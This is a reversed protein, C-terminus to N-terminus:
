KPLDEPCGRSLHFMMGPKSGTYAPLFSRPLELDTSPSWPERQSQLRFSVPGVDPLMMLRLAPDGPGLHWPTMSLTVREGAQITAAGRCVLILAEQFRPISTEIFRALAREPSGGRNFQVGGPWFAFGAPPAGQRGAANPVTPPPSELWQALSIFDELTGSRAMTANDNSRLNVTGDSLLELSLGLAVETCTTLCTLRPWTALCKWSGIGNVWAVDPIRPSHGHLQKFETFLSSASLNVTVATSYLQARGNRCIRLFQNGEPTGVCAADWRPATSVAKRPVRYTAGTSDALTLTLDDAQKVTFVKQADVVTGAPPTPDLGVVHDIYFADNPFDIELRRAPRELRIPIVTQMGSRYGQVVSPPMGAPTVRLMITEVPARTRSSQVSLLITKAPYEGFDLSIAQGAEAFEALNLFTRGEGRTLRAMGPARGVRHAPVGVPRQLPRRFTVPRPGSRDAGPLARYQAVLCPLSILLLALVWLPSPRPAEGPDISFAVGEKASQCSSCHRNSRYCAEHHTASCASCTVGTAQIEGQCAACRLGRITRAM